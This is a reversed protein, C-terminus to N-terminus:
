GYSCVYWYCCIYVLRSENVPIGFYLAGATGLRVEDTIIGFLSIFCYGLMLLVLVGDRYWPLPSDGGPPGSITSDGKLLPERLYGDEGSELDRVAARRERVAAASRHVAPPGQGEVGEPLPEPIPVATEEASAQSDGPSKPAQLSGAESNELALLDGSTVQQLKLSLASSTRQMPVPVVEEKGFADKSVQVWDDDTLDGPSGPKPLSGRTGWTSAGFEATGAGEVTPVRMRGWSLTDPVATDPGAPPVSGPSTSPGASAPSGVEVWTRFSSADLPDTGDKPPERTSFMGSAKPLPESITDRWAGSM